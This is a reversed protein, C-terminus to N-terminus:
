LNTLEKKDLKIETYNEETQTSDNIIPPKYESEVDGSIVAEDKSSNESAISAIVDSAKMEVEEKPLKDVLEKTKDDSLKLFNDIIWFQVANIILPCLVMVIVLEVKDNSKFPSLIFNGIQELWTSLLKIL